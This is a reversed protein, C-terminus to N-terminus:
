AEDPAFAHGHDRLAKTWRKIRARLRGQAAREIPMDEVRAIATLPSVYGHQILAMCFVRDKDRDAVAKAMFLDVVDLCYGVRGNTGPTQIRQLRRQWGAPLCATEPGVGQAYYGYTEHFRSGEGIAADIADAKDIANLPYIDAEASMTFIAPPNPIPGLISQSGVVVFEYENTIDAAARIIHELNERNM